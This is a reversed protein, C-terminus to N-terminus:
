ENAINALDRYANPNTVGPSYFKLSVIVKNKRMAIKFYFHKLVELPITTFIIRAGCTSHHLGQVHPAQIMTLDQEHSLARRARNGVASIGIKKYM